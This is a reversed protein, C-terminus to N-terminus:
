PSTNEDGDVDRTLLLVGVAPQHEGRRRWKGSNGSRLSTDRISVFLTALRCRVM